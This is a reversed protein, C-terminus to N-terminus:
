KSHHAYRDLHRHDNHSDVSQEEDKRPQQDALLEPRLRYIRGHYQTGHNLKPFFHERIFLENLGAHSRNHTLRKKVQDAEYQDHAYRLGNQEVDISRGASQIDQGFDYILIQMEIDTDRYSYGPGNNTTCRESDIREANHYCAEHARPHVTQGQIIEGGAKVLALSHADNGLFVLLYTLVYDLREIASAAKVLNLSSVAAIHVYFNLRKKCLVLERLQHVHYPTFINVREDRCAVYAFHVTQPVDVLPAPM